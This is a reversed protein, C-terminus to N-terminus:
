STPLHLHTYFVPERWLQSPLGGGEVGQGFLVTVGNAGVEAVLAQTRIEDILRSKGVGSEGAILWASSAGELLRDLAGSLLAMEPERGIFRAAKLFSERIAINEQDVRVRMAASLDHIADVASQYRYEPLKELLKGIVLRLRVPLPDLDPPTQLIHLMTQLSGSLDFPHRGVFLEYAIVGVAYLDSPATANYGQLVEPSIYALTGGTGGDDQVDRALALGFDLVKVRDQEDVLINGPKLDRHIVGRHHMYALAQLTQILLRTKVQDDQAAERITRPNELLTMTFYPRGLEFGYDLVDIIHPHRLSALMQFERALMLHSSTGGVITDFVMQQPNIKLQKLAVTKHTLRDMAQFVVGMGGEGLKDRLIYRM